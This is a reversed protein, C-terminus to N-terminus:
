SASEAKRGTVLRRAPGLAFSAPLYFIGDRDAIDVRRDCFAGSWRRAAAMALWSGRLRDGAARRASDLGIPAATPLSRTSAARGKLTVPPHPHAPLTSRIPRRPGTPDPARAIRNLHFEDM